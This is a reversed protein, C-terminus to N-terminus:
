AAYRRVSALESGLPKDDFVAPNALRVSMMPSSSMRSQSRGGSDVLGDWHRRGCMRGQTPARLPVAAM